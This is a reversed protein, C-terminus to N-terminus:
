MNAFIFICEQSWDEEASEGMLICIERNTFCFLDQIPFVKSFGKRFAKLQKEIGSGITLDIVKDIYTEINDITVSIDKGGEVLEISPYGPLTFDLCLDELTANDVAIKSLQLAVEEKSISSSTQISLKSDIFKKLMLLSSHLRTDLQKIIAIDNKYEEGFVVREVFLPHFPMDLVRADLM